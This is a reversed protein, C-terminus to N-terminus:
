DPNQFRERVGAIFEAFFAAFLGLMLGLVVALAIMLGTRSDDSTVSPREVIRAQELHGSRHASLLSAQESRRQELRAAEADLRERVAMEALTLTARAEADDAAVAQERFEDRRAELEDVLAEWDEAARRAAPLWLAEVRERAVDVAREVGEVVAERERGRVSMKLRDGSHTVSLHAPAVDVAAVADVVDEEGSGEGLARAQLSLPVPLMEVAAEAKLEPDPQQAVWVLAVLLVLVFTGLAWWKRRVLILALDVLSIEDDYPERRQRNDDNM